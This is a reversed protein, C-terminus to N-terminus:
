GWPDCGVEMWRELGDDAALLLERVDTDVIGGSISDTRGFVGSLLHMMDM